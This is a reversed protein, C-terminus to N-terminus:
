NLSARAKANMKVRVPIGKAAAIGDVGSGAGFALGPRGKAVGSDLVYRALAAGGAWLYAWYPANVGLRSLGSRSHASYLLIDHLDPAPLLHLNGRIFEQKDPM